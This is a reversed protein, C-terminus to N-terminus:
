YHPPKEEEPKRQEFPVEQIELVQDSLKSLRQMIAHLRKDQQRIVEDLQETLRQQHALQMEVEILRQHLMMASDTKSPDEPPEASSETM